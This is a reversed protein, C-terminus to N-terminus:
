RLMICTMNSALIFDTVDAYWYFNHSVIVLLYCFLSFFHAVSFGHIYKNMVITANLKCLFFIVGQRCM